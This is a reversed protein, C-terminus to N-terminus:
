KSSSEVLKIEEETLSYLQYVLHDIENDTADIQRQLVLKEHNTKCERLDKNKNIIAEVLAGMKRSNNDNKLIPFPLDNLKSAKVQPIVRSEGQNAVRYLYLFLRSQLIGLAALPSYKTNLQFVYMADTVILADKEDYILEIKKSTTLGIFKPSKFISIDRPRHLSWWPHKKASVEKCTIKERFKKLHNYVNPYANIQTARETYILYQDAVWPYYRKIQKGSISLKLLAKELEASLRDEASVIHMPAFDPTVGRQIDGVV